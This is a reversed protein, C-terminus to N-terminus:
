APNKHRLILALVMAVIVIFIVGSLLPNAAAIQSLTEKIRLINERTLKITMMVIWGLEM